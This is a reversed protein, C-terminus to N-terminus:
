SFLVPHFNKKKTQKFCRIQIKILYVSILNMLHINNTKRKMKTKNLNRAMSNNNDDRWKSLEIFLHSFITPTIAENELTKKKKNITKKKKKKM